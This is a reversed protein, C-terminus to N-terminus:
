QKIRHKHNRKMQQTPRVNRETGNMRMQITKGIRRCKMKVYCVIAIAWKLLKRIGCSSPTHASHLLPLWFIVRPPLNNQLQPAEAAKATAAFLKWRHFFFAHFRWESEAGKRGDVLRLDSMNMEQAVYKEREAFTTRHEEIVTAVVDFFKRGWNEMTQRHITRTTTPLTTM